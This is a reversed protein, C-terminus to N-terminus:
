RAHVSRNHQLIWVMGAVYVGRAVIAWHKHNTRQLIVDALMFSSSTVIPGAVRGFLSSDLRHYGLPTSSTSWIDAAGGLGYLMLPKPNIEDSKAISAAALLASIILCVRLAYHLTEVIRGAKDM